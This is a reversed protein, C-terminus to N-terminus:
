QRGQFSASIEIWITSGDKNYAEIDANYSKHIGETFDKHGQKLLKLVKKYSAPTISKNIEKGLIEDQSFGRLKDIDPSIYLYQLTEADIVWIADIFKEAM